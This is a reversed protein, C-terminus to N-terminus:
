QNLQEIVLKKTLAFSYKVQSNKTIKMFNPM